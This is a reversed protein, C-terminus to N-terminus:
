FVSALQNCVDYDITDLLDLIAQPQQTVFALYRLAFKGVDKEVNLGSMVAAKESPRIRTRFEIKEINLAGSNEETVLPEQLSYVPPKGSALVLHGSELAELVDRYEEKIMDDTLEGRRLEKKKYKSLFEKFETFAQQESVAKKAM